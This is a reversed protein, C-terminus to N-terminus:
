LGHLREPELEITLLCHDPWRQDQPYAWVRYSDAVLAHSLKRGLVCHDIPQRAGFGNDCGVAGHAVGPNALVAGPPDGDNIEPWIAVIQGQTDRATERELDFRRNFDGIVAFANDALARRDIWDELILVQQQLRHCADRADNLPDSNCAAKLHVALLRIAHSTGPYLTLDAGRRVYDDLGLPRYDRDCRHPIGRRVGFGVNQVDHRATFCFVFQPFILKAVERGDIEQLSIVDLDAKDAFDRLRALDKASWRGKPILDCPFTRDHGNARQDKGFCNGALADFTEPTMMWELNWTGVRLRDAGTAPMALAIAIALAALRIM